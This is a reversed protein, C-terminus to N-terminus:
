SGVEQLYRSTLGELPAPDDVANAGCWARVAALPAIEETVGDVRARNERIITPQISHVRHAGHQYLSRTIWSHDVRRAIDESAAYRIRMVADTPDDLLELPSDDALQGYDWTLFPRSKIPVFTATVTVGVDIIWCGHPSDQEGFDVPAPSGVYLVPRGGDFPGNLVEPLHIHAAIVADFGLAELDGLPIVPERFEDTYVGTPTRAGSISWHALLVAPGDIQSRLDRAAEILLQAALAHNEDRDGGDRSAILRAPPTWPLCAVTTGGPANWLGPMEYLDLERRFIELSSPLRASEVDHNGCVAVVEIDHEARFAQLPRQFALLESPTPRRRHFADGGFLVADVDHEAALNLAAAWVREQDRLRDGPERGYDAGAGLHLDGIALFRSM